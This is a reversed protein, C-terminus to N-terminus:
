DRNADATGQATAWYPIWGTIEIQNNSAAQAAPILTTFLTLALMGAASVKSLSLVTRNM